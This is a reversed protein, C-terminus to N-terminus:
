ITLKRQESALKKILRQAGDKTMSVKWVQAGSYDIREVEEALTIKPQNDDPAKEGDAAM